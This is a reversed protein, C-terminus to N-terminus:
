TEGVMRFESSQIRFKGEGEQGLPARTLLWHTVLPFGQFVGGGWCDGAGVPRGIGDRGIELLSAGVPLLQLRLTASVEDFFRRLASLGACIAL